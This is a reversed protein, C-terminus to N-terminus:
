VELVDVPPAVSYTATRTATIEDRWQDPIAPTDIAFRRPYRNEPNWTGISHAGAFGPLEPDYPPDSWEKSLQTPLTGSITPGPVDTFTPAPPMTLPSSIAEATGRSVAITLTLLASGTATDVEDVASIVTGTATVGQDLMRVRHGADVGLAHALPIQWSVTNGRQAALLQVRARNLACTVARNLRAQDRRPLGTVPQQEPVGEGDLVTQGGEWIRDAETDTDLVVRDRRIVPGVAAVADPIELTLRYQEVARQTWRVGARFETWLLLDTNKNYWPSGPGETIDGPLRGWIASVLFWGASDVAGVVMEIDPLESSSGKWNIFGDISTNGGLGPHYWSYTQNRQRYRSYRYDLELEVVNTAESLTALSVDVSEYLTSGPAFEWHVGNQHWHSIRPNGDRDASLSAPRTSLREQAYDWRSRGDVPEFVDDSWLGGVLADIAPIEMVEVADALRTTAECTLVRTVVDFTPQVLSGTFRRSSIAPDGSVIFDISVPRGTYSLADVPGDGLWLAFTAVSDGDEACEIRVTGTLQDTVDVGGLLVQLTWAFSAGPSIVVTDIDPEEGGSPPLSNLPLSNLPYSNLM